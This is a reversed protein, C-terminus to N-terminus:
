TEDAFNAASAIKDNEREILLRLITEKFDAICVPKDLYADGCQTLAEERHKDGALSTYYLVPTKPDFERLQQCLETGKGDPLLQETIYIDFKNERAHRLADAVNSATMVGFGDMQLLFMLMLRTNQHEDVYLIRARTHKM